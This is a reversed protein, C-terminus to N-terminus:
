LRLLHRAPACAVELAEMLTDVDLCACVAALAAAFDGHAAILRKNAPSRVCLALLVSVYYRMAGPRCAVGASTSLPRHHAGTCYAVFSTWCAHWLATLCNLRRTANHSHLLSVDHHLM